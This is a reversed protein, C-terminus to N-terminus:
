TNYYKLNLYKEKYKIYKNVWKIDKIKEEIKGESTLYFPIIPFINRNKSLFDEFTIFKIPYDKFLLQDNFLNEFSNYENPLLLLYSLINNKTYKDYDLKLVSHGSINLSYENLKKFQQETLNMNNAFNIIKQYELPIKKNEILRKSFKDRNEGGLSFCVNKSARINFRPVGNSIDLDDPFMQILKNLLLGLSGPIDVISNKLYLVINPANLLERKYYEDNFYYENFYEDIINTKDDKIDPFFEAYKFIKHEGLNICFKFSHMGLKYLKEFNHKIYEVVWFYYEDKINLQIKINSSEQSDHLRSFYIQGIDPSFLSTNYYIKSLHQKFPIYMKINNFWRLITSKIYELMIYSFYTTFFNFDKSCLKIFYSYKYPTHKSFLPTILNCNMNKNLFYFLKDQNDFSVYYIRKNKYCNYRYLDLNYEYDENDLFKKNCNFPYEKFVKELNKDDTWYIENSLSFKNPQESPFIPNYNQNLSKFKIIVEIEKGDDWYYLPFLEPEIELKEQLVDISGKNM